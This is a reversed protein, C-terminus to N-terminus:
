RALDEAPVAGVPQTAARVVARWLARALWGLALAATIATLTIM